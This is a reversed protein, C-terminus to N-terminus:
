KDKHHICIVVIGLLTIGCLMGVFGGIFFANKATTFAVDTSILNDPTM